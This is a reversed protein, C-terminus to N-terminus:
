TAGPAGENLGPYLVPRVRRDHGIRTPDAGANATPAAFLGVLFEHRTNTKEIIWSHGVMVVLM